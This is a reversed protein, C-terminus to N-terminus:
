IAWWFFLAGFPTSKKQYVPRNWRIFHPSIAWWSFVVGVPTSFLFDLYKNMPGPLHVTVNESPEKEHMCKAVYFSHYMPANNSAKSGDALSNKGQPCTFTRAVSILAM